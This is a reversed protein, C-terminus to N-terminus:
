AYVFISGDDKQVLDFYKHKILEGTQPENEPSSKKTRKEPPIPNIPKPRKSFSDFLMRPQNPSEFALEARHLAPTRKASSNFSREKDFSNFHEDLESSSSLDDMLQDM